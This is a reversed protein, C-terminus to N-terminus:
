TFTIRKGRLDNMRKQAAAERLNLPEGNADNGILWV